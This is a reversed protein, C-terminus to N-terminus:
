WRQASSADSAASEEKADVGIKVSVSNQLVVLMGSVGCVRHGVDLHSVGTGRGLDLACFSSCATINSLALLFKLDLLYTLVSAPHVDKSSTDLLNRLPVGHRKPCPVDDDVVASNAAIM